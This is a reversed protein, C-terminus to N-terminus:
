SIKKKSWKLFNDKIKDGNDTNTEYTNKKLGIIHM